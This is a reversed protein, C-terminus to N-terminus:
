LAACQGDKCECGAAAARGCAAFLTWDPNGELWSANVCVGCATGDDICDADNRCTKDVDLKGCDQSCNIKTEYPSQCDKDGCTAMVACQKDICSCIKRIDPTLSACQNSASWKVSACINCGPDVCDSDTDCATNASLECACGENELCDAPRKGIYNLEDNETNKEVCKGKDFELEVCADQCKLLELNVEKCGYGVICNGSLKAEINGNPCTSRDPETVAPCGGGSEASDNAGSKVSVTDPNGNGEFINRNQHYVFFGGALLALTVAAFIFGKQLDQM